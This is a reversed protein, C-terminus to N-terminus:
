GAASRPLDLTFTSGRGLRSRVTLTGGCTAALRRALALGLGTGGASPELGVRRLHNAIALQTIGVRTIEVEIGAGRLREGHAIGEDHLVDFGAPEIYASPRGSLDETHLPGTATCRSDALWTSGRIATM